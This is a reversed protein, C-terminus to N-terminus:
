GLSEMAAQFVLVFLLTLNDSQHVGILYDITVTENGKKLKIKFSMCMKKIPTVMRSPFGNKQLCLFMLEHNVTGFAKALDVFVVFSELGHEKQLEPTNKPPLRRWRLRQQPSLWM